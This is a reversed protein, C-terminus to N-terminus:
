RRMAPAGYPPLTIKGVTVNAPVTLYVKAAAKSRLVAVDVTCADLLPAAKVGAGTCVAQAARAVDPALNSAYFLARPNGSTVRGGCASLLSQDASVRWSNGYVNYFQSFAFPATLVTGNRAEIASASSGANALLGQVSVPWRGLGVSVNIWDPSGPNVQAQVSDGNSGRILYVNGQRSVDSGDPLNLQAGDALNVPRRNLELRTPATCVAVDSTGIRTAVAQNVAANPWTPAGSVQRTQVTFGPGTTALQFDGAAHQYWGSQCIRLDAAARVVV